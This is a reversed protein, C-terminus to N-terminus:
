SSFLLLQGVRVGVWNVYNFCDVKAMWDWIKNDAKQDALTRLHGIKCHYISLATQNPEHQNSLISLNQKCVASSHTYSIKYCSNHCSPYQYVDKGYNMSNITSNLSLIVQM